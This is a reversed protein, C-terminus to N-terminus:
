RSCTGVLTSFSTLFYIDDTIGDTNDTHLKSPLFSRTIIIIIAIVSVISDCIPIMDSKIGSCNAELSPIAANIPMQAIKM